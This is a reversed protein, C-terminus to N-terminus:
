EEAEMPKMKFGVCCVFEGKERKVDRYHRIILRPTEDQKPRGTLALPYVLVEPIENAYFSPGGTRNSQRDKEPDIWEGWLVLHDDKKDEGINELDLRGEFDAPLPSDELLLVAHLHGGKLCQWRYEGCEGFLRGAPWVKLDNWDSVETTRALHAKVPSELWACDLDKGIDPPHESLDRAFGIMASM